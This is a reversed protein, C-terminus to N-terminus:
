LTPITDAPCTSTWQSPAIAWKARFYEELDEIQHCSLAKDYVVIEAYDGNLYDAGVGPLAGSRRGGLYLQDIGFTYKPPPTGPDIGTVNASQTGGNGKLTATIKDNSSDIQFLSTALYPNGNCDPNCGMTVEDGANNDYFNSFGISGNQRRLPIISDTGSTDSTGSTSMGSVLRGLSGSTSFNPKIVAFVTMERKGSLASTLNAVLAGNNFRLVTKGNIQNDQRTPATGFISKANNGNGSLDDWEFLSGTNVVPAVATSAYSIALQNSSKLLHRSGSGGTRTFIFGMRGGNAALTPNWNPNNVQEQVISTVDYVTQNGPPCNNSTVDSYASTHLSSTSLPTRLQNSGTQSFLDPHPDLSSKYFGFVRENLTGSKGSPTTCSFKITANTISSNKPINVNSFVMGDNLYKTQNSNCISVSFESADCDHMEFDNSQWSALTQSGDDAREELTDRTSDNINGYTTSPPTTTTTTGAKLTSVNSADYWALPAFNDPTKCVAYTRVIESRIDFVYLASSSTKPLYVRGTGIVKKEYGDASTSQIDAQMTIKYRNNTSGTLTTETTGNYNGCSANDFQEQAYDIAAKSAERAMQIYSQKYSLNLSNNAQILTAYAVSSMVVILIIVTPM